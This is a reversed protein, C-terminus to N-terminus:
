LQLVSIKTKFDEFLPEYQSQFWDYQKSARIASDITMIDTYMQKEIPTVVSLQSLCQQSKEFIRTTNNPQHQIELSNYLAGLYYFIAEAYKHTEERLEAIVIHELHLTHNYNERVEENLKCQAENLQNQKEEFRRMMQRMEIANYIQWGVAITVIISLLTVCAGIFSDPSIISHPITEFIWLIFVALCLVLAIISSILAITARKTIHKNSKDM